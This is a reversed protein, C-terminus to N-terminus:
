VGDDEHLGFPPKDPLAREVLSGAPDGRFGFAPAREMKASVSKGDTWVFYITEPRDSRGLARWYRAWPPAQTWDITM